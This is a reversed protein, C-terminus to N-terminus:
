GEENNNDNDISYSPSFYLKLLTYLMALHGGIISAKKFEKKLLELDGNDIIRDIAYFYNIQSKEPTHTGAEWRYITSSHVGFLTAMEPQTLGLM